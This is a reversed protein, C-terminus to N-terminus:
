RPLCRSRSRAPTHRARSSCWGAASTSRSAPRRDRATARPTRVFGPVDVITLGVGSGDGGPDAPRLLTRAFLGHWAREAVVRVALDYDATPGRAASRSLSMADVSTTGSTANSRASRSGAMPRNVPGWGIRDRRIARGRHVQREALPGYSARDGGVVSRREHPEGRRAAPKRMCRRPRGPELVRPASRVERIRAGAPRCFHRGHGGGSAHGEHM